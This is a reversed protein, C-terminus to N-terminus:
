NPPTFVFPTRFSTTGAPISPFRWGRIQSLVCQTVAASALADEVVTAESVTGNALVTINVVLKGRLGPNRKLENDYCFQIGPAYRRVVALLSENSRYDNRGAGAGAEPSGGGTAPAGGDGGGGDVQLDTIAAISIGNSEIASGQLDPSAITAVGGVSSLQTTGRGSRVARRRRPTEDSDSKQNSAPLAKSVSAMVDDVSKTVQTLNQTVERTAKERGQTGKTEAARPPSTRRRPETRPRAPETAKEETKPEVKPTAVRAIQEAIPAAPAAPKELILRALREPVNDVTTPVPRAVPIVLVAILVALGLMGAGILCNRLARDVTGWMSQQYHQAIGITSM